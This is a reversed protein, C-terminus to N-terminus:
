LPAEYQQFHHQAHLSFLDIGVVTFLYVNISDIFQLYDFLM